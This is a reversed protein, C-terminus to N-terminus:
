RIPQSLNLFLNENIHIFLTLSIQFVDSALQAERKLRQFLQHLLMPNVIYMLVLVSNLWFDSQLSGQQECDCRRCTLRIVETEQKVLMRCPHLDKFQFKSFGM